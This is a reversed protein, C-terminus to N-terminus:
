AYRPVPATSRRVRNQHAIDAPRNKQNWVVTVEGNRHNTPTAVMELPADGPAGDSARYGYPGWDSAKSRAKMPAPDGHVRPGAGPDMARRRMGAAQKRALQADLMKGKQAETLNKNEPDLAFDLWTRNGAEEGKRKALDDYVQAREEPTRALALRKAEDANVGSGNRAEIEMPINVLENFAYRVGIAALTAERLGPVLMALGTAVGTAAGAVDSQGESYGLSKYDDRAGFGAALGAAAPLAFPKANALFAQTRSLAGLKQTTAGAANGVGAIAKGETLATAAKAKEAMDDLKTARTLGNKLKTTENIALSLKGLAGVGILAGAGFGLTTVIGKALNPNDDVWDSLKDLSKTLSQIGGAADGVFLNGTSEGLQFLSSQLNSLQGPLTKAAEKMTGGYLERFGKLMANFATEGEFKLEGKMFEKVQADTLKLQKQLIALAPIGRDGLQQIEEMSTGKVRLQTLAKAIGLMADSGGGAAATADGIDTMVSKVDKAAIGVAVLRQAGLLSDQFSFPSERDFERMENIQTKAAGASGLMKTFAVETMQMSGAAKLSAAGALGLAGALGVGGGLAVNSALNLRAMKGELTSADSALANFTSRLGSEGRTVFETVITDVSPM